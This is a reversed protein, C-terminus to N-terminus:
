MIEILVIVCFSKTDLSDWAITSLLLEVLYTMRASVALNSAYFGTGIRVHYELIDSHPDLFGVWALKVQLLSNNYMMHGDRQRGLEIAHETDM